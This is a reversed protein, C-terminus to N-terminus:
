PLEVLRRITGTIRPPGSDHRGDRWRRFRVPLGRRPTCLLPGAYDVRVGDALTPKFRALITALVAKLEVMARTAGPCMRPGASFPMYEFPRPRVTRWRDPRFFAPDPFVGENRHTVLQSVAVRTGARLRYPGLEVTRTAARCWWMVPPLLRLSELIAAELPDFGGRQPGGSLDGGPTVSIEKRVRQLEAPHAMLLFLTWALARATIEHGAVLLTAVQSMLEDEVFPAGARRGEEILARLVSDVGPDGRGAASVTRRLEVELTESLRLLRSYPLGPVSLPFVYPWVSFLARMWDTLADRLDAGRAPDLGVVSRLGLDLSLRRLTEYLEVEPGSRWGDLAERTHRRARAELDASRHSHLLRAILRRRMAHHPGHMQTLGGFLRELASGEPIRMPAAEAGLPRFQETDELVVRNLRPSFVFVYDDSGAALTAVDGFESRLALLYRPSDRLFRILNGHKGLLPMRARGPPSKTSRMVGSGRTARPVARSAPAGM